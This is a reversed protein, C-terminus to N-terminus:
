LDLSSSILDWKTDTSNYRFTYEDTKNATLTNAPITGGPGRYQNGWTVAANGTTWQRIRFTVLQGNRYSHGSLATPNAITFNGDPGLLSHFQATHINPTYTGSQFDWNVQRISQYGRNIGVGANNDFCHLFLSGSEDTLAPSGEFWVNSFMGLCSSRVRVRSFIGGTVTVTSASFDANDEINSIGYCGMLNTRPAAVTWDKDLNAECWFNIFSNGVSSSDILVGKGNNGETTGGLFVNGWSDDLYVGATDIEEFVGDIIKTATTQSSDSARAGLVIGYDPNGDPSLDHGESSSRGNVHPNILVTSVCAHLRFGAGSNNIGINHAAVHDFTATRLGNLFWGDTTSTNGIVTLKSVYIDFHWVASDTPGLTVAVGTGTHKLYTGAEGYLHIGQLELTLGDTAFWGDRFYYSRYATDIASEWGTWPSAQTGLGGTAQSAVDIASPVRSVVAASDIVSIRKTGASFDVRSGTSSSQLTGRSWTTGSHTYVSQCIEWQGTPLGNADVAEILVVFTKGNDGSAPAQFGTVASGQTLTGTGTTTTTVLIRDKFALQASAPSVLLSVVIPGAVCALLMAALTLTLRNNRIDKTM